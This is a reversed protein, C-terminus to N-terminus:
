RSYMARKWSSTPTAAPDFSLIAYTRAGSSVSGAWSATMTNFSEIGGATMLTWDSGILKFASENLKDPAIETFNTM